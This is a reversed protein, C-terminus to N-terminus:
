VACSIECLRCTLIARVSARTALCYPLQAFARQSVFWWSAWCRRGWMGSGCRCVAEEELLLGLEMGYGDVLFLELVRPVIDSLELAAVGLLRCDVDGELGLDLGTLSACVNRPRFM